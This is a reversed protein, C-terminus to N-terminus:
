KVLRNIIEYMSEKSTTIILLDNVIAYDITLASDPFNLYRISINKYLNDQFSDTSPSGPEQLFLWKLDDPMTKEWAKMIKETQNPDNIKVVLALRPGVSQYYVLFTFTKGLVPMELDLTQIFKEFSLYQEKYRGLYIIEKFAIRQLTKEPQPQEKILNILKPWITNSQNKQFEIIETQDVPLLSPPLPRLIPQCDQDEWCQNEGFGMVLRCRNEQCQYHIPTQYGFKQWYIFGALCILALFLAGLYLIRKLSATKYFDKIAEEEEPKLEPAPKIKAVPKKPISPKSTIKAPPITSPIHTPKPPVPAVPLEPPPSVTKPPTPTEKLSIPKPEKKIQNEEKKTEKKFINTQPLNKDAKDTQSLKKSEQLKKLDKALTRIEPQDTNQNNNKKIFSQLDMKSIMPCQYDSIM